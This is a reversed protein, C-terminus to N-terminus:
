AEGLRSRPIKITDNVAGGHENNESHGATKGSSPSWNSSAPSKMASTRIAPGLCGDLDGKLKIITDNLGSIRNILVKLLQTYFKWTIDSGLVKWIESKLKLVISKAGAIVNTARLKRTIFSIEGFVDGPRLKAIVTNQAEDRTVFVKGAILIFM